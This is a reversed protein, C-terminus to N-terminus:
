QSPRKPPIDIEDAPKAVTPATPSTVPISTDTDVGVRTAPVLIQDAPKTATVTPTASVVPSSASSGRRGAVSSGQVQHIATSGCGDPVAVATALVTPKSANGAQDITRVRYLYSNDPFPSNDTYRITTASTIGGLQVYDDPTINTSAMSLGTTIRQGSSSVATGTSTSNGSQLVLEREILFGATDPDTRLWALDIRCGTTDWTATLGSPASASVKLPQVDVLDSDSQLQDSDIARVWYVYEYRWDLASSPPELLWTGSSAGAPLNTTSLTAVRTASMAALKAPTLASLAGIGSRVAQAVMSQHAVVGYRAATNVLAPNHVAGANAGAVVRTGLTASGSGTVAMAATAARTAGTVSTTAGNASAGAATPRSTGTPGSDTGTAALATYVTSRWLEYSQVEESADGDPVFEVEVGGNTSPTGVLLKPRTPSLTAPVRASLSVLPGPVNWRNLPVIRYVYYQASSRSLQDVYSPMKTSGLLVFDSDKLPQGGPGTGTGLPDSLTRWSLALAAVSIRSKCAQAGGAGCGPGVAAAPVPAAAPTTSHTVPNQRQAYARYIEYRADERGSTWSLTLSGGLDRPAAKILPGSWDKLSFVSSAATPAASTSAAAVAATAASAQFASSAASVPEPPTLNPYALVNSATPAATQSNGKFVAVVFYQYYHDQSVSTDTFTYVYLASLLTTELQSNVSQCSQNTAGFAHVCAATALADRVSNQQLKVTSVLTPVQNASPLQGASMLTPQIPTPTLLVPAQTPRETDARYIQYAISADVAAGSDWINPASPSWAILAQQAPPTIGLASKFFPASRRYQRARAALFSTQQGAQQPMLQATAFPVPLPKAWDQVVFTLQAPDSTRGFIDTVTVRYTVSTPPATNDTFFSAAESGTASTGIGNPSVNDTVLVAVDNLKVGQSGVQQQSAAPAAMSDPGSLRRIDYQAIGLNAEEAASLRQWRLAVSSVNLQQAQLGSPAAPKLNTANVPVTITVIALAITDSASTLRYTYTQGPTVNADDFALGLTSAVAPHLAAGLILTRRAQMTIDTATPAARKAINLSPRSAAATIAAPGAASASSTGPTGIVTTATTAVALQTGQASHAARAAAALRDFVPQASAGRTLTTSLAPLTNASTAKNLLSALPLSHTSGTAITAPASAATIAGLPSRNLPSPLTAAATSGNFRYLNFGGDPLWGDQLSWRLRVEIGGQANVAAAARLIVSPAATAATAFPAKAAGFVFLAFLM